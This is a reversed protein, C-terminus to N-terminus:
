LPFGRAQKDSRRRTQPIVRPVAPHSSPPELKAAHQLPITPSPLVERRRDMVSQSWLSKTTSRSLLVVVKGVVPSAHFPDRPSPIHIPSMGTRTDWVKVEGPKRLEGSTSALLLGDPSFAVSHGPQSHGRLKLMERGTSM